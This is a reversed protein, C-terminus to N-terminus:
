QCGGSTAPTGGGAIGATQGRCSVGGTANEAGSTGSGCGAGVATGYRCVAAAAAATVAGGSHELVVTVVAAAGNGGHAGTGDPAVVAATAALALAATVALALAVAAAVVAVAVEAAGLQHWAPLNTHFRCTGRVM